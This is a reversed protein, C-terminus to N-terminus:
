PNPVDSELHAFGDLLAKAAALSVPLPAANAEDAVHQSGTVAATLEEFGIAEFSGPSASHPWIKRIAEFLTNGREIIAAENWVTAKDFYKNLVLLSHAYQQKKRDFASNSASSNLAGTVLTLNGLTDILAERRRADEAGAPTPWEPERCTQPMVHEISLKGPLIFVEHKSITQRQNVALLIMSLMSQRLERYLPRRLLAIGLERDDPWRISDGMGSALVSRLTERSVGNKRLSRILSLFTINYHKTTLGCLARRVLYSELDDLIGDREVEDLQGAVEVLLLLLLPYLTSTDLLRLRTAFQGVRDAQSPVILGAFADAFRRMETLTVDVREGDDKRELWSRFEQFLHGINVERELRYQLYHFLFLDLRSRRFRGQRDEIKWFRADAPGGADPREDYDRWCRAYLDDLALDQRSARLFVYNRVLDSPLLPVGRANLSEFIVQPDDGAELEITVFQLYRRFTEFLASFRDDPATRVHGDEGTASVFRDIASYFFLYGEAFAHKRRARKGNLAPFRGKVTEVNEASLVAAFAIQDSNTPWVKHREQEDQVVGDNRTLRQLDTVYATRGTARAYDRLAALVLQLTTLRQQGDIIDWANM